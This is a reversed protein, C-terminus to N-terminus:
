RVLESLKYIIPLEITLRERQLDLPLPPFPAAARVCQRAQEDLLAFGSPKVVQVGQSLVGAPSLTFRLRVVGEQHRQRALYPYERQALIRARIIKLYRHQAAAPNGGGGPGGQGSGLIASSAPGSDTAAGGPGGTGGPGGSPAGPPQGLSPPSVPRQAASTLPAIPAPGEPPPPPRQPLPTLAKEPQLRSVPAAPRKAAKRPKPALPPAPPALAAPPPGPAAKPAGPPSAPGPPGGPGPRGAEPAVLSVTLVPPPAPKQGGSGLLVLAALAAHLGVSLVLSGSFLGTERVSPLRDMDGM